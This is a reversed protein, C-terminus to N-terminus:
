GEGCIQWAVWDCRWTNGVGYTQANVYWRWCKSGYKGSTQVNEYWRRCWGETMTVWQFMYRKGDGEGDGGECIGDGPLESGGLRRCRLGARIGVDSTQVDVYWRWCKSGYKGSTQLAM